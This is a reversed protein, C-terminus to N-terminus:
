TMAASVCQSIFPTIEIHLFFFMCLSRTMIVDAHSSIQMGDELLGLQWAPTTYAILLKQYQAGSQAINHAFILYPQSFFLTIARLYLTSYTQLCCM